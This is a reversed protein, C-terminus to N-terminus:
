GESGSLGGVDDLVSPVLDVMELAVWTELRSSSLPRGRLHEFREVRYAVTTPAVGLDLAVSKRSGGSRLFMVLTERLESSREDRGLVGTLERAVLARAATPDAFMSSVLLVDRHLHLRRRGARIAVDAARRAERYCRAVGTAGVQPDSSGVVLGHPVDLDRMAAVGAASVPQSRSWWLVTEGGLAVALNRCGPLLASVATALQAVRSDDVDLPRGTDDTVIAVIHHGDLRLGLLEAEQDTVSGGNVLRDFLARQRVRRADGWATAADQHAALVARSALESYRTLRLLDNRPDRGTDMDHPSTMAALIADQVVVHLRWVAEVLAVGPVGARALARADVLAADAVELDDVAREHKLQLLLTLLETEIGSPSSPGGGYDAVGRRLGAWLVRGTEVAWQVTGAGLEAAARRLVEPAASSLESTGGQPGLWCMWPDGALVTSESARMAV